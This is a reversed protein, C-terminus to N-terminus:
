APGGGLVRDADHFRVKAYWNAGLLVAFVAAAELAFGTFDSAHAPWFFFVAWPVLRLVSAARADNTEFRRAGRYAILLFIAAGLSYWLLWIM